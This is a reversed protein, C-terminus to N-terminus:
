LGACNSACVGYCCVYEDRCPPTDTGCVGTCVGVDCRAGTPCQSHDLCVTEDQCEFNLCWRPGVCRLDSACVMQCPGLDTVLEVAKKEGRETEIGGLVGCEDEVLRGLEDSVLSAVYLLYPDAKGANPPVSLLLLRRDTVPDRELDDWAEDVKSVTSLVGGEQNLSSSRIVQALVRDPPNNLDFARLGSEDQELHVIRVSLSAMQDSGCAAALISLLLM